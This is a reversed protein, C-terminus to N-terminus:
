KMLMLLLQFFKLLMKPMGRLFPLRRDLVLTHDTSQFRTTPLLRRPAQPRPLRSLPLPYPPLPLPFVHQQHRSRIVSSSLGFDTRNATPTLTQSVTPWGCRVVHCHSAYGAASSRGGKSNPVPSPVFYSRSAAACGLPATAAHLWRAIALSWATNVGMTSPVCPLRGADQSTFRSCGCEPRRALQTRGRRCLWRKWTSM